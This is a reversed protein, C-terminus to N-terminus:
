VLCMTHGCQKIAVIKQHGLTDKCVWCCFEGKDTEELKIDIMDKLRIWHGAKAHSPCKLRPDPPATRRTPETMPTMEPAWFSTKIWEKKTAPDTKHENIVDIIKQKEKKEEDLVREYKDREKTFPVTQMNEVFQRKIKEREAEVKSVEKLKASAQEGEWAALERKTEKKQEILNEILCQKCFLHGKPCIVPKVVRSLCLICHEFKKMSDDLTRPHSLPISGLRAKITGWENLRQRETYTFISHATNNKSHRSM